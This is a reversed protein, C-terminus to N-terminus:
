IRAIIARNLPEYMGRPLPIVVGDRLYIEKKTVRSVANLNVIYSRGTRFFRNDLEKEMDGLTRKVKYQKRAYVTVYNKCVELFQIEHLLVRVTEGPMELTLTDEQLGLRGAARDLTEFLKTKQVPKILYHLASVEYGEAIYDTYGTIFIIQVAENERRVKKALEVGNMQGMEVDLLLIDFTKDEEYHFLFNEASSYYDLLIEHGVQEAWGRVLAAIYNIDTNCDDCIAIKYRM